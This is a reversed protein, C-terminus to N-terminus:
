EPPDLQLHEAIATRASALLRSCTSEHIRLREAIERQTHGDVLLRLARRQHSTLPADVLLRALIALEDPGPRGDTLLDPCLQAAGDRLRIWRTTSWPRPHGPPCRGLLREAVAAAIAGRSHHRVRDDRGGDRPDAM